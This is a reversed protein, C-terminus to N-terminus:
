SIYTSTTQNPSNFDDLRKVDKKLAAGHNKGGCTCVCKIERAEKCADCCEHSVKAPRVAPLDFAFMRTWELEKPQDM